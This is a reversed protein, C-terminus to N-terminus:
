KTFRGKTVKGLADRKSEGLAHYPSGRSLAYVGRGLLHRRRGHGDKTADRKVDFVLPRMM